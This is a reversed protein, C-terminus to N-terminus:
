LLSCECFCKTGKCSTITNSNLSGYEYDGSFMMLFAQYIHRMFSDGVFYIKFYNLQKIRECASSSNYWLFPSSPRWTVNLSFNHVDICVPFASCEEPQAELWDGGYESQRKTHNLLWDTHYYSNTNLQTTKVISILIIIVTFPSM